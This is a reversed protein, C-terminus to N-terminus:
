DPLVLYATLLGTGGSYPRISWREPNVLGYLCSERNVKMVGRSVCEKNQKEIACCFRAGCPRIRALSGLGHVVRYGKEQPRFPSGPFFSAMKFVFTTKFAVWLFSSAMLLACRFFFFFGLPVPLRKKKKKLPNWALRLRAVWNGLQPKSWHLSPSMSQTSTWAAPLEMALVEPRRKEARQPCERPITRFGDPKYSTKLQDEQPTWEVLLNFRQCPIQPHPSSKKVQAKKTPMM